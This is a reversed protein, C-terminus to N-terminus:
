DRRREPLDKSRIKKNEYMAMDMAKLFDDTTERSPSFVSTGVSFSLHYPAGGSENFRRFGDTIRRILADTDGPGHIDTLIVFEDGGYRAVLDTRSSAGRLIRGAAQIAQDGALHGFTDNISKFRDLDIMVGAVSGDATRAATIQRLHSDLYQRTYVGSLADVSSFECQVNIYVSVLSIALAVWMLSVGYFLAQLISAAILTVLFLISPFFLYRRTNNRNTYILIEAYVLYSFSVLFPLFALRTRAYRNAATIQFFVPTFLNAAAMVLVALAPLILVRGRRRIRQSDEFLKYDVYLTWSFVAAINIIYLLVSLLTLIGRAHPFTRGDLCFSLSELVCLTLAARCMARFIREAPANPRLTNRAHILLMIMLVIGIGNATYVAQLNM